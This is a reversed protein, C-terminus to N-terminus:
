KEIVFELDVELRNTFLVYIEKRAGVVDWGGWFNLCTTILIKTGQTFM